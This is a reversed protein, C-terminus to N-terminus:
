NIKIPKKQASIGFSTLLLAQQSAGAKDMHQALGEEVWKVSHDSNFGGFFLGTTKHKVTYAANM